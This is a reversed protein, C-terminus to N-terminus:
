LEFNIIVNTRANDDMGSPVYSIEMTLNSNTVLENETNNDESNFDLPVSSGEVLESVSYIVSWWVNSFETRSNFNLTYNCDLGATPFIQGSTGVATSAGEPMGSLEDMSDSLNTQLGNSCNMDWGFNSQWGGNSAHVLTGEPYEGKHGNSSGDKTLSAVSCLPLNRRLFM